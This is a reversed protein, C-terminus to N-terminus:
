VFSLNGYVLLSIIIAIVFGALGIVAIGLIIIKATRKFRDTGPKYSVYLIHRANTIFSQLNSILSM